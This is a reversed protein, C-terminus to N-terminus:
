LVKSKSRTFSSIPGSGKPKPAPGAKAKAKPKAKPVAPPATPFLCLSDLKTRKPFLATLQAMTPRDSPVAPAVDMNLHALVKTSVGVPFGDLGVYQFARGWEMGLLVEQIAATIILVWQLFGLQSCGAESMAIVWRRQVRAKFRRFLHTDAPQLLWTMRAPVKCHAQTQVFWVCM